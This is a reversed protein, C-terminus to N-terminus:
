RPKRLNLRAELDGAVALVRWLTALHQAFKARGKEYRTYDPSEPTKRWNYAFWDQQLQVLDSGSSCFFRPSPM